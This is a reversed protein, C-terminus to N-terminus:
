VSYSSIFINQCNFQTSISFHIIQFLVLQKNLFPNPMLYGVFTSIGYFQFLWGVDLIQVWTAMDTEMVTGRIGRIGGVNNYIYIYIYVCVCVSLSGDPYHNANALTQSVPTWDWTSEYWVWFIASSVKKSLMSCYLTHIMPLHLMRSFPTTGEVM